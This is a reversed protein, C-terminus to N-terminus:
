FCTRRKLTERWRSCYEWVKNANKRRARKIGHKRTRARVAKERRLYARYTLTYRCGLSARYKLKNRCTSNHRRSSRVGAYLTFSCLAAWRAVSAGARLKLLATNHFPVYLAFAGFGSFHSFTQTVPFVACPRTRLCFSKVIVFHSSFFYVRQSPCFYLARNEKWKVGVPIM